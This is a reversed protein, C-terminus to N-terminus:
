PLFSEEEGAEKEDDSLDLLNAKEEDSLLMYPSLIGGDGDEEPEDVTEERAARKKNKQRRPKKFQPEPCLMRELTETLSVFTPRHNPKEDWCSKMMDALAKPVTDGIPPRLGKTAVGIVVQYPAIGEYPLTRHEMEWLCIGM